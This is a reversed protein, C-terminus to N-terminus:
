YLTPHQSTKYLGHLGLFHLVVFICWYKTPYFRFTSLSFLLMEFFWKDVTYRFLLSFILLAILSICHCVVIILIHDFRVEKWTPHDLGVGLPPVIGAHYFNRAIERKASLSIEENRPLHYFLEQTIKHLQWCQVGHTIKGSFWLRSLTDWLMTNGSLPQTLTQPATIM